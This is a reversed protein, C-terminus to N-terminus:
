LGDYFPRVFFRKADELFIDKNRQGLSNLLKERSIGLSEYAEMLGSMKKVGEKNHSM